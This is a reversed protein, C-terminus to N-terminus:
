LEGSRTRLLTVGIPNPDPIATRRAIRFRGTVPRVLGTRATWSGTGGSGRSIWGDRVGEGPGAPTLALAARMRGREEGDQDNERIALDLDLTMAGFRDGAWTAPGVGTFTGTGACTELDADPAPCDYAQITVYEEEIRGALPSGAPADQVWFPVQIWFLNGPLRDGTSTTLPGEVRGFWDYVIWTPEVLRGRRVPPAFPEMQARTRLPPFGPGVSGSSYVTDSWSAAAVTDAPVDAIVGEVALGTGSVSGSASVVDDSRDRTRSVTTANQLDPDTGLDRWDLPTLTVDVRTDGVPVPAGAPAVTTVASAPVPLSATVEGGAGPETVTGSHRFLLATGEWVPVCPGEPTECQEDLLTLRFPVPRVGESFLSLTASHRNGLRGPLDAATRVTVDRNWIISDRTFDVGEGGEATIWALDAPDIDAAAPTATTLLGAAALAALAARIGRRRPVHPSPTAPAASVLTSWRMPRRM